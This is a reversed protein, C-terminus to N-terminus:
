ATFLLLQLIWVSSRKKLGFWVWESGSGFKKKQLFQFSIFDKRCYCRSFYSESTHTTCHTCSWSTLISKHMSALLKSHVSDLRTNRKRKQLQTSQSHFLLEQSALHPLFYIEATQTEDVVPKSRNRQTTISNIQDHVVTTMANYSLLEYM